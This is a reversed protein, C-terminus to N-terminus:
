WGLPGRLATGGYQIALAAWSPAVLTLVLGAAAGILVPAPHRALLQPLTM